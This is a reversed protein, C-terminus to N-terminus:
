RARQRAGTQRREPAGTRASTYASGQGANDGVADLVAGVVITDGDIATPRGLRAEAVGDAATLEATETRAPAGARTFTYVAGRNANAGVTHDPAGAVITDGDIAVSSGFLDGIAAGSLSQEPAPAALVLAYRLALAAPLGFRAAGVRRGTPEALRPVTFRRRVM